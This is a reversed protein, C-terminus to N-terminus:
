GRQLAEAVADALADLNDSTIGAVNIRGGKVIYIHREERLWDVQADSLGSFSFMGRQRRIFEFDAEPARRAMAEVFQARVGAIRAQMGELEKRWQATLDADALITEVILGGHAPPNSYNTRVVRKVQSLTRRAAEADGGIVTLAGTRERYLGFNKSFSSAILAEPVADLLPQICARDAEVSDGFGQYAFDIFPLWGRDVAAAAVEAWQDAALDVGTPNHCCAHLLVVDGAPVDRLAALMAPFDLGRTAPDYYPYSRRALGAAAFVGPHNAWTPTSVWVTAGPFFARLLDGGVRLAGTGGPTHATAARGAAAVASDPGLILDQVAKGYAPQGSIPLYSKTTESELMRAEAEKVSALVPTRGQDDVYVGVGLNIKDPAPDQRFAETLGLIPDPPAADIQSLMPEM